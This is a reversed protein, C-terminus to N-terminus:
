LVPTRHAAHRTETFLRTRVDCTRRLRFVGALESTLMHEVLKQGSRILEGGVPDRGSEMPHIHWRRYLVDELQTDTMLQRERNEDIVFKSEGWQGQYYM